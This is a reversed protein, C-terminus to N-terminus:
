SVALALKLSALAPSSRLHSEVGILVLRQLVIFEDVYIRETM